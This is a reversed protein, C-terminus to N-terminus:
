VLGAIRAAEPNDGCVRTLGADLDAELGFTVRSEALRILSEKARQRADEKMDEPMNEHFFPAPVSVGRAMM